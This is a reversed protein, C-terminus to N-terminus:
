LKNIKDYLYYYLTEIQELRLVLQKELEEMDKRLEKIMHVSRNSPSKIGEENGCQSKEMWVPIKQDHCAEKQHLPPVQAFINKEKKEYKQIAQEFQDITEFPFDDDSDM